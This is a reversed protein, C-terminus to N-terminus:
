ERDEGDAIAYCGAQRVHDGYIGFAKGNERLASELQEILESNALNVRQLQDISRELQEIREAAEWEIFDAAEFHHQQAKREAIKQLRKILATM